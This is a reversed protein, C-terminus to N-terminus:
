RTPPISASVPVPAHARSLALFGILLAGAIAAYAWRQGAAQALAAGGSSGLANGPPWTLDMIAVAM